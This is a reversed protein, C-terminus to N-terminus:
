QGGFLIKNHYNGREDPYVSLDLVPPTAGDPLTFKSAASLISTSSVWVEYKAEQVQGQGDRVARKVNKVRAQYTSAATSFAQSGDAKKTSAVNVTISQTLMDDFQRDM